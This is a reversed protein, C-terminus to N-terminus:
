QLSECRIWGGAPPWWQSTVVLWKPAVALPRDVNTACRVVPEKFGVVVEPVGDEKEINQLVALM